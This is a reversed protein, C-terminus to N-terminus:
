VPKDFIILLLAQPIYTLPQLKMKRIINKLGQISCLTAHPLPRSALNHRLTILKVISFAYINNTRAHM